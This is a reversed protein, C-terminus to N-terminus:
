RRAELLAAPGVGVWRVEFTLLARGADDRHRAPEPPNWRVAPMRENSRPRGPYARCYEERSRRAGPIPTTDRV